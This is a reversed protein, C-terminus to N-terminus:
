LTCVYKEHPHYPHNQLPEFTDQKKLQMVPRGDHKTVTNKRSGNEVVTPRRVLQKRRIIFYVIGNLIGGINSFTTVFQFVTMPVSHDVIQWVGYIAMACWQIFFAMVFLSMCKAAKHSARIIRADDGALNKFRPEEARLRFWTLIYLTSNMM